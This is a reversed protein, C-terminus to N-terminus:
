SSPKPHDVSCANSAAWVKKGLAGIGKLIQPGFAALIPGAFPIASVASSVGSWLSSVKGGITGMVGPLKSLSGSKMGEFLSGGIQTGVSKIGGM